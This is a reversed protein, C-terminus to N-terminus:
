DVIKNRTKRKKRKGNQVNEAGVYGLPDHSTNTM